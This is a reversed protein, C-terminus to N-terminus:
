RWDLGIAPPTIGARVLTIEPGDRHLPMRHGLYGGTKADFWFSFKPMLRSALFAITKGFDPGYRIELVEREGLVKRPGRVAIMEYFAPGDKCMAIQFRLEDTEGRVLPLFFLQMPVNVVRDSRPLDLREGESPDAGDPVCTIHGAAHDIILLELTNGDARTAQSRQELLRLGRMPGRGLNAEINEKSTETRSAAGREAADGRVAAHGLAAASHSPASSVSPLGTNGGSAGMPDVSRPRNEVPAITPVPAYVPAFLAESINHGGGEIAM